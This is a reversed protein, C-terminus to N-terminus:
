TRILALTFFVERDSLKTLRGTAKEWVCLHVNGGGKTSLMALHEGDPSWRPYWYGSGDADGKTINIAQGGAVPAVWVDGRDIHIDLHSWAQLYTRVSLLPRQRVYAVSRGDPSFAAEGSFLAGGIQEIKMVDDPTLTGGQQGLATANAVSSVCLVAFAFRRSCLRM